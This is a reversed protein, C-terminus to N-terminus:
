RSKLGLHEHLSTLRERLDHLESPSFASFLELEMERMRANCTELLRRGEDTLDLTLARRNNPDEQRVVLARRELNAVMEGMTQPTVKFRRSLEASNLGQWRALSAIITFQMPTLNHPKLTAESRDRVEYFIRALLYVMGWRFPTEFVAAAMEDAQDDPAAVVPARAAPAPEPQRRPRRVAGAHRRNAM